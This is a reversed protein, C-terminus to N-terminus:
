DGDELWPLDDGAKLSEPEDLDPLAAGVLLKPVGVTPHRGHGHVRAAVNRGSQEALDAPVDPHRNGLEHSRLTAGGLTRQM